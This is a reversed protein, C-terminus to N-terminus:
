KAIFQRNAVDYELLSGREIDFYWGHLKLQGGAVRERIWEFSMLNELSGLISQLECAHELAQQNAHPMEELVKARAQQALHMWSSIFSEQNKIDLGGMLKRIGGCHAHGFVIIHAVGLVTVGYELAASTGHRGGLSHDDTPVLNAVNRIVFLDGPACDLVLAPDVRSDCCAVVLIKPSQGEAVLQRYLADDDTFHQARFRHFGEILAAPNTM